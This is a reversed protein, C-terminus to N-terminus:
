KELEQIRQELKEILVQQEQIAKTLIPIIRTYDMVVFEESEDKLQTALGAESCANTDLKKTRVIEPLISRVEQAIFGYEMETNLGLNPYKELDFDYTVPNLQNVIDIAGSITRINKKAKEDSAAGFFGTYGLDNYFVGGWGLIGGTNQRSGYVGVGDRGNAAGRVGIARHTLSANIALGFVGAPIFGTGSYNTIGEIGNYGNATGQNYGSISVGDAGTNNFSAMSTAGIAAPNIMHLLHTPAPTRIGINGNAEITMRELGNSYMRFDIANNTGIYNGAVATNGQTLWAGATSTVPGGSGATGNVIVTGNTNFTPNTLTWSTGNTGDVGPPGQPGAPGVGGVPGVPGQPGVAGDIGDVGDIGNVGPAGQPGAPGVPGQPGVAGDNGDAGPPGAPGAPGAAGDNGDVGDVGDIGNVGPVGQPGQAGNPGAPGAPGQPGTPGVAGACLNQWGTATVFYYFCDIDTDYVLLADVPAVIAVRQASTMRPVLVGKNTSEMELVASPDPTTTGIGVNNQGYSIISFMCLFGTTILKFGQKM